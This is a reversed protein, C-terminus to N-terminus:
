ELLSSEAKEHHAKRYEKYLEPASDSIEELVDNGPMAELNAVMQDYVIEMLEGSDMNDVSQQAYKEIFEKYMEKYTM